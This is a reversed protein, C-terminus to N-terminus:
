RAGCSTRARWTPPTNRRRRRWRIAARRPSVTSCTPRLRRDQAAGRQHSRRDPAADGGAGAPRLAARRRLRAAGIGRGDAIEAAADHADADDGRDCAAQGAPHQRARAADRQLDGPHPQRARRHHARRRGQVAGADRRHRDDGQVIRGRSALRQRAALHRVLAQGAAEQRARGSEAVSKAPFDPHSVIGIGMQAINGIPAFDRRVDYGPNSYLAINISTSSSNAFVLTYGDPAAKAAQRMAIVGNAGGRNEVVVQQGLANSLGQAVLRAITDNGGGPPFPVILTIPGRRTPRRMRAGPLDSAHRSSVARAHRGDGDDRACSDDQRIM